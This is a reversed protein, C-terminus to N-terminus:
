EPRNLINLVGDFMKHKLRKLAASVVMDYLTEFPMDTKFGAAHVGGGGFNQALAAVDSEGKSRLGM